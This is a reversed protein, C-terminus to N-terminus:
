DYLDCKTLQVAVCRFCKVTFQTIARLLLQAILPRRIGGQEGAFLVLRLYSCKRRKLSLSLFGGIGESNYSGGCFYKLRTFQFFM